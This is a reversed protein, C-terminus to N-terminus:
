LLTQERHQEIQHIKVFAYYWTVVMVTDVYYNLQELFENKYISGKRKGGSGSVVSRKIKM